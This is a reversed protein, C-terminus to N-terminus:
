FGRSFCQRRWARAGVGLNRLAGSSRALVFFGHSSFNFAPRSAVRQSASWAVTLTRRTRRWVIRRANMGNEPHAVLEVPRDTQDNRPQPDRTAVPTRQSSQLRVLDLWTASHTLMRTRVSTGSFSVSFSVNEAVPIHRPCAKQSANVSSGLEPDAHLEVRDRLGAEAGCAAQRQRLALTKLGVSNKTRRRAGNRATEAM